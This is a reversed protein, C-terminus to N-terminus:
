GDKSMPKPKNINAAMRKRVPACDVKHFAIARPPNIIKKQTNSTMGM